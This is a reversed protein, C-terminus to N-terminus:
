KGQNAQGKIDHPCAATTASATTGSASKTRVGRNLVTYRVQAIQKANAANVANPRTNEADCSCGAERANMM